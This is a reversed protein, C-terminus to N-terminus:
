GNGETIRWHSTNDEFDKQSAIFAYKNRDIVITTTPGSSVSIFM